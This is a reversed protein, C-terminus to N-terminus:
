LLAGLIDGALSGDDSSNSGTNPPVYKRLRDKAPNYSNVPDLKINRVVFTDNGTGANLTDYGYPDVFTGAGNGVTVDDHGPGGHFVDNGNGAIVTDPGHGAYIVDSGNGATVTDFGGGCIIKDSEDGTTVSDNGNHTRITTPVPLVGFAKSIDIMDDANGGTIQLSKVKGVAYTGTQTVTGSKGPYSVTATISQGGAALGVTITNPERPNGRIALVHGALGVSFLRRNELKEAKPLTKSRMRNEDARDNDPM